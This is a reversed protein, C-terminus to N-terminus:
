APASIRLDLGELRVRLDYYYVAVAVSLFAASVMSLLTTVVTEFLASKLILLSVAQGVIVAVVSGAQIALFALSVLMTRKFHARNYTRALGQVFARPAPVHEIGIACFSLLVALLLPVFTLLWALLALALLIIGAVRLGPLAIGVAVGFVALIGFILGGAVGWVLIALMEFIGMLLVAPWRRLAGLVALRVDVAQADYVMAVGLAIGVNAFPLVFITFVLAAVSAAGLAPTSELAKNIKAPSPKHGPAGSIQQLLAGYFATSNQMTYYRALSTPILAFLMILTLPAFNRIYLTVARDLIEGITLPRLDFVAPESSM